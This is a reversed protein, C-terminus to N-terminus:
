LIKLEKLEREADELIIKHANLREEKLVLFGINHQEIILKEEDILKELWEIRKEKSNM